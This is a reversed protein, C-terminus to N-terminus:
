KLEAVKEEFGIKFMLIFCNPLTILMLFSALEFMKGITDLADWISKQVYLHLKILKLGICGMKGNM